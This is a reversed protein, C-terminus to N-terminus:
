IKLLFCGVGGAQVQSQSSGRDKTTPATLSLAKALQCYAAKDGFRSAAKQHIRERWLSVDSDLRLRSLVGDINEANEGVILVGELDNGLCLSGLKNTILPRGAMLAEVSKFNLGGQVAIPSLMAHVSGYFESLVDVFGVRCVSGQFEKEIDEAVRSKCIGGAIILRAEPTRAVISPWWSSRVIQLCKENNKNNSGIFGFVVGSPGKRVDLGRAAHSFSGSEVIVNCALGEAMVAAGDTESIVIVGDAQNLLDLELRKQKKPSYFFRKEQQNSDRDLIYFVDHTDCYWKLAPNQEKLPIIASSFWAGTYVVSHLAPLKEITKAVVNSNHPTGFIHCRETFRMPPPANFGLQSRFFKEVKHTFRSHLPFGGRKLPFTSVDPCVIELAQHIRKLDSNNPGFVLAACAVGAYNLGLLMDFARMFYARALPLMREPFVFLVSPHSSEFLRLPALTMFDDCCLVEPIDAAFVQKWFDLPVREHLNPQCGRLFVIRSDAKISLELLADFLIEHPSTTLILLSADWPWFCPAQRALIVSPVNSRDRFVVSLKNQLAVPHHDDLDVILQKLSERDSGGTAYNWHICLTLGAVIELSLLRWVRRVISFDRQKHLFLEIKLPRDPTENILKKCLNYLESDEFVCYHVLSSSSQALHIQRRLASEEGCVLVKTTGTKRPDYTFAHQQM